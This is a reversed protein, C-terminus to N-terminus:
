TPPLNYDAVMAVYQRLVSQYDGVTSTAYHQALQGRLQQVDNETRLTAPTININLLESATSLMQCYKDPGSAVTDNQGVGKAVIYEHFTNPYTVM